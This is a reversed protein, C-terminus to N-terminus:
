DYIAQILEKVEANPNPHNLQKM